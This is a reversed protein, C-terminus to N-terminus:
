SEGNIEALQETIEGADVMALHDSLLVEKDIESYDCLYRDLLSEAIIRVDSESLYTDTNEVVAARFSEYPLSEFTEVDKIILAM